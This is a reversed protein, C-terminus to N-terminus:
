YPAIPPTNLRHRSAALNQSGQGLSSILVVAQWTQPLPSQEKQGAMAIIEAEKSHNKANLVTHELKNLKFLRSLKESVEVSETGLLIPRGEAHINKVEKLIASYKERETMYMEDNHRQAPM